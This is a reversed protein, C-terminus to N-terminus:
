GRLEISVIKVPEDFEITSPDRGSFQLRATNIIHQDSIKPISLRNITSIPIYGACPKAEGPNLDRDFLLYDIGSEELKIAASIGAPGAGAIIVDTDTSM